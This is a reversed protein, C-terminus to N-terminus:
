LAGDPNCASTAARHTGAYLTAFPVCAMGIRRMAGLGLEGLRPLQGQVWARHIRQCSVSLQAMPTDRATGLHPEEDAHATLSKAVRQALALYVTDEDVQAILQAPDVAASVVCRADVIQTM